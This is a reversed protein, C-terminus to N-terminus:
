KGNARTPAARSGSATGAQTKEKKRQAKKERLYAAVRKNREEKTEGERIEWDTGEIDEPDSDPDPMAEDGAGANSAAAAGATAGFAQADAAKAGAEQTEAGGDGASKGAPPTKAPDGPLKQLFESFLTFLQAAQQALEENGKARAKAETQITQLAREM